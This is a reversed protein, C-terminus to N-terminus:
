CPHACCAGFLGFLGIQVNVAKSWRLPHLSEEEGSFNRSFMLSVLCHPQESKFSRSNTHPLLWECILSSCSMTGLPTPMLYYLDYHKLVILVMLKFSVM